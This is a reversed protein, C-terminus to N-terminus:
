TSATKARHTSPSCAFAQKNRPSRNLPRAGAVSRNVQSSLGASWSPVPQSALGMAATREPLVTRPPDRGDRHPASRERPPRPRRSTNGRREPKLALTMPMSKRSGGDSHDSNSGSAPAAGGDREGEGFGEGFFPRDKRVLQNLRPHARTRVERTPIPLPHPGPEVLEPDEGSWAPCSLRSM